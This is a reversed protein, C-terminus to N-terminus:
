SKLILIKLNKLNKLEGAFNALNRTDNIFGCTMKEAFNANNKLIILCRM